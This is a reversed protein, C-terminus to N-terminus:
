LPCLIIKSNENFPYEKDIKDVEKIEYYRSEKYTNPLVNINDAQNTLDEIIKEDIQNKIGRL